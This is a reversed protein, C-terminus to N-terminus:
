LGLWSKFIEEFIAITEDVSLSGSKTSQQWFDPELCSLLLGTIVERVDPTNDPLLFGVLSYTPNKNCVPTPLPM